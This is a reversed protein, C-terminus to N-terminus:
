LNVLFDILFKWSNEGELKEDEMIESLDRYFDHTELIKEGEKEIDFSNNKTVQLDNDKSMKNIIYIINYIIM